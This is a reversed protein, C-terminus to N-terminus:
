KTSKDELTTRSIKALTPNRLCNLVLPCQCTLHGREVCNSYEKDTSAQPGGFSPPSVFGIFDRHTDSMESLPQRMHKRYGIHLVRPTDHQKKTWKGLTKSADSKMKCSMPRGEAALMRRNVHQRQMRVLTELLLTHMVLLYEFSPPTGLMTTAITMPMASEM